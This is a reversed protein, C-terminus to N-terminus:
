KKIAFAWPSELVQKYDEDPAEDFSDKAGCSPCKIEESINLGYLTGQALNEPDLHIFSCEDDYLAFLGCTNCKMICFDCDGLFGGRRSIEEYNVARIM